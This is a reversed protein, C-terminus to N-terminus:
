LNRWLVVSSVESTGACTCARMCWSYLAAWDKQPGGDSQAITCVHMNPCRGYGCLPVRSKPLPKPYWSATWLVDRELGLLHRVTNCKRACRQEQPKAKWLAHASGPWPFATAFLICIIEKAPIALTNLPASFLWPACVIANAM